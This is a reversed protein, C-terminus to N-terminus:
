IIGGQKLVSLEERSLGLEEGYIENNHEGILPPRRRLGIQAAGMASVFAGPHTVTTDLEPHELQKFYGRAELQPHELLDRSTAVPFLLIRRDVSGQTLEEKTHAEFFRQLPEVIRDMVETRVQGYGLEEWNVSNLYDDGMGEEDLWALLARTSAAVSGGQLMYNIYGDKCRWNVRVTTDAATQRFVGMRKIVVGEIDWSQPAHALTKAVAQQCSVDM